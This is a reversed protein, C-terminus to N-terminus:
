FHICENEYPLRLNGYHENIQLCILEYRRNGPRAGQDRESARQNSCQHNFFYEDFGIYM